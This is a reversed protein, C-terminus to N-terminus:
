IDMGLEQKLGKVLVASFNVNNEKALIDLWNPITLTKKVYVEKERNRFYPMWVHIYIVKENEVIVIQSEDTPLPNDRGKKENDIICLALMDQAAGVADVENEVETMQGPFDPTSVLVGGNEKKKIIIPYVYNEKM